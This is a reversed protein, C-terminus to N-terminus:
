IFLTITKLCVFSHFIFLIFLFQNSKLLFNALKKKDENILHFTQTNTQRDTLPRHLFIYWLYFDTCKNGALYLVSGLVGLRGM